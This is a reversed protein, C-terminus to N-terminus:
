RSGRPGEPRKEEEGRWQHRGVVQRDGLDAREPCKVYM